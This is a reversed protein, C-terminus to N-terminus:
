LPKGDPGLKVPGPELLSRFRRTAEAQQAQTPQAVVQQSPSTTGQGPTKKDHCAGLCALVFVGAAALPLCGKTLLNM